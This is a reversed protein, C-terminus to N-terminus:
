VLELSDLSTQAIHVERKRLLALFGVFLFGVIM